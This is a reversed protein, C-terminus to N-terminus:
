RFEKFGQVINPGTKYSSASKEIQRKFERMFFERKDMDGEDEAIKAKVFYVVANSQYRNLDLETLEDQLAGSGSSTSTGGAMITYHLELGATVSTLPSKYEGDDEDKEIIAIKNAENYYAYKKSAM